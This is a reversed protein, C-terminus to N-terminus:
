RSKKEGRGGDSGGGGKDRVIQRCWIPSRIGKPPVTRATAVVRRLGLVPKDKDTCCALYYGYSTVPPEIELCECGDCTRAPESM